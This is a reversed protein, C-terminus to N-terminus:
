AGAEHDRYSLAFTPAVPRLPSSPAFGVGLSTGLMVVATGPEGAFARAACSGDHVLSVRVKRGLQASVLESLAQGASPTLHRLVAYLGQAEPLPHDNRFYGAVSAVVAPVASDAHGVDRLTAAVTTGMLDALERAGEATDASAKIASVPSASLLCLEVLAEGRFAVGARKVFSHGFDLVAAWEARGPISRAAGLLPLSSPYVTRELQVDSVGLEPLYAQATRTLVDGFRGGVLGGGLKVQRVTAWHAWVDDAWEPRAARNVGDGRYLTAVLSALAQGTAEALRMATERVAPDPSSFCDDFRQLLLADPTHAIHALGLQAAQERVRAAIATSSLLDHATKDRVFDPLPVGPLDIIRVRNLSASPSLNLLDFSSM